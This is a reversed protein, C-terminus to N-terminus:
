AARTVMVVQAPNVGISDEGDAAHLWALTGSSSRIADQLLKGVEDPTGVVEVSDGTSLLLTTSPRATIAQM